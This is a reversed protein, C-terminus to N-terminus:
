SFKRILELARKKRADKYSMPSNEESPPPPPPPAQAMVQGQQPPAQQENGEAYVGQKNEKEKDINSMTEDMIKQATDGKQGPQQPVNKDYSEKLKSTLWGHLEDTLLDIDFKPSEPMFVDLDLDPNAQAYDQLWSQGYLPDFAWSLISDENKLLNDASGKVVDENLPKGAEAEKQLQESIKIFQSYGVDDKAFVDNDLEEVYKVNPLGFSKIGIKGDDGVAITTNKDGMFTINGIFREDKKSGQSVVSGGANGDAADGANREIWDMFKGSYTTVDQILTNVATDIQQQTDNDKSNKAEIIKAKKDQLWKTIIGVWQKNEFSNIPKDSEPNYSNHKIFKDIKKDMDAGYAQIKEWISGFQQNNIDQHLPSGYNMPTQTPMWNERLKLYGRQRRPFPSKFQFPIPQTYDFQSKFNLPTSGGRFFGRAHMRLIAKEEPSLELIIKNATSLDGGYQKLLDARKNIASQLAENYKETFRNWESKSFRGKNGAFGLSRMVTGVGNGMNRYSKDFQIYGKKDIEFSYNWRNGKSDKGKSKYGSFKGNKFEQKQKFSKFEGGGIARNYSNNPDIGPILSENENRGTFSNNIKDIDEDSTVEPNFPDNLGQAYTNDIDEESIVDKDPIDTTSKKVCKSGDWYEDEACQNQDPEYVCSGNDVEAYQDYNTAEPDTCGEKRIYGNTEKCKEECEKETKAQIGDGCGCDILEEKETEQKEKKECIGKEANWVGGKRACIQENTAGESKNMQEELAAKGFDIESWDISYGTNGPGPNGYQGGGSSEFSQKFWKDAGSTVNGGYGKSIDFGTQAFPPKPKEHVYGKKDMRVHDEYTNAMYGEGTKPDYMMHKKFKKAM